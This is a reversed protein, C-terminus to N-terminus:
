TSRSGRQIKDDCFVCRWLFKMEGNVEEERKSAYAWMAEIGAGPSAMTKLQHFPYQPPHCASYTPAAWRRGNIASARM